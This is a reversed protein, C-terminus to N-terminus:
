WPESLAFFKDPVDRRVMNPLGTRSFLEKAAETDYRRSIHDALFNEKTGIKRVTPFFKLTVVLYLFERLLSLLNPDKPKRNQIADVVPDNDCFITITKGTWTSGWLRASVLVIWFEKLHIPVKTDQLQNPFDRCYFEHGHWAGGGLPTADGACVTYPIDLMQDLALPIPDENIIMQVGNFEVMYRAWWRIDKRAEETLKIKSSEGMSAVVRLLQLLRGMFPRSYRIVKSVWFMKGLLSQLDRKCITTKRVWRQIEEKMDALKDAPVSMTMAETDFQVGLYTMLKSPSMAKKKSEVLGLDVLLDGLKMFSETAREMTREVGGLDDSYNLCNYSTEQITNLGSQRHIWSVADTLRQGQLGSHRLGFALGIFFFHLGRWVVGVRHYESPCMPIQLFYRSLDRKWMWCGSGCNLIMIRYEDIRPFTYTCPQGMYYDSPTMNNLSKEGYTADYVVRRGDPKKVATMLPSVVTNWWPASPFPGTLGGLVLEESMFTDVHRLFQYASGHNRSCSELDPLSSLGLPFGFEIFQVIEPQEYGSLHFRWRDPKLGIHKLRIRAGLHNATYPPYTTGDPRLGPAAVCNHLSQFYDPTFIKRPVVGVEPRPLCKDFFLGCPLSVTRDKLQNVKAVPKAPVKFGASEADEPLPFPLIESGISTTINQDTVKNVRPSTVLGWASSDALLEPGSKGALVEQVIKWDKALDPVLRGGYVHEPNRAVFPKAGARLHSLDTVVTNGAPGTDEPNAKTPLVLESVERTKKCGMVVLDTMVPLPAVKSSHHQTQVAQHQVLDVEHETQRLPQVIQDQVDIVSSSAVGAVFIDAQAPLGSNPAAGLSFSGRLASVSNPPRSLM